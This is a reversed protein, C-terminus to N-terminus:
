LAPLNFHFFPWPALSLPCPVLSLSWANLTLPMHIDFYTPKEKRRPPKAHANNKQRAILEEFREVRM